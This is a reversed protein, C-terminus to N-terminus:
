VEVAETNGRQESRRQIRILASRVTSNHDAIARPVVPHSQTHGYSKCFSRQRIVRTNGSFGSVMFVSRRRAPNLSTLKSAAVLVGDTTVAVGAVVHVYHDLTLMLLQPRVHGVIVM